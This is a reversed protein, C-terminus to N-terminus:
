LVHADFKVAGPRSELALHATFRLDVAGLTPDPHLMDLSGSASGGAIVGEVSGYPIWGKQPHNLEVEFVVRGGEFGPRLDVTMRGQQGDQHDSAGWHPNALLAAVPRSGDETKGPTDPHDDHFLKIKASVTSGSAVVHKRAIETWNGDPEQHQVVFEVIKGDLNKADVIMEGTDGHEHEDTAWRPNTLGHTARDLGAQQESETAATSATEAPPPLAKAAAKKRGVRVSRFKVLYGHKSFFHEAHDIRYSGDVQGDIKDLALVAGPVMRPDGTIEGRATAFGEAIKRLRGKAMSEATATDAPQSERGAFALSAAGGHDRAGAGTEGEPSAKGVIEQKAKPDWGHVAVGGVQGQAAIRVTLKRLGTGPEVAIDAGKAPPGIILKKGEIRLANGSKQALRRLLVADTTAPQLVHEKTGPPAEATLGHEQAVRTAIEHDDADNFSRTMQSLALRHLTELCVVVLSPPADRVFRPELAVVEGEFVKVLKAAFGIEVKVAVGSAFKKGNILSLRPDNFVIRCQGFLDADLDVYIRTLQADEDIGLRAGGVSVRCDPVLRVLDPM